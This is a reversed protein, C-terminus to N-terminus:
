GKPRAWTTPLLTGNPFMIIVVELGLRKQWRKTLSCAWRHPMSASYGSYKHLGLFYSLVSFRHEGVHRCFATFTVREDNERHIKKYLFWLRICCAHVEDENSEIESAREVDKCYERYRKASMKVGELPTLYSTLSKPDQKKM